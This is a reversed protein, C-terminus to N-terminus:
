GIAGEMSNVGEADNAATPSIAVGFWQDLNVTVTVGIKGEATPVQVAGM